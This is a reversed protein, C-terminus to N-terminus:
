RNKANIYRDIDRKTLPAIGNMPLEAIQRTLRQFTAIDGNKLAVDREAMLERRKTPM